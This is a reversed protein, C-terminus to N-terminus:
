KNKLKSQVTLAFEVDSFDSDNLLFFIVESIEHFDKATFPSERTCNEDTMATRVGM